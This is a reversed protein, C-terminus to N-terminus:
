GNTAGGIWEDLIEKEAETRKVRLDVLERNDSYFQREQKDLKKGQSKKKRIAVVQAFTCDGIEQYAALFSWWHLYEVSRVEYGLVHNIPAVLLPFDQQWDMLRPRKKQRKGSGDGGGGVFWYMFNVADQLDGQPIAEFDPYFVALATVAREGDSIEPDAMVRMVDLAARYDSHIDYERGGITASTPLEYGGM